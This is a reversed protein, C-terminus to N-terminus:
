RLYNFMSLNEIQVFSQQAATLTTKQQTLDSLAKNYDLDQLNSLTQKYQADMFSGTDSLAKLQNLRSGQSAQATLVSNLANNLSNLAHNIGAAQLASSSLTGGTYTANLTSILNSITSFLSENSSPKVTFTDGNHPAGQIDFQIGNFTIAQGSTYPLGTAPAPLSSAPLTAGSQDTGTITYTTAGGAAVAFTIQYTNRLQDATPPPNSVSGASIVGSGNNIAPGLSGLPDNINTIAVPTPSVSNNIQLGGNPATSVTYTALGAATLGSQIAEALTGPGTGNGAVSVDSNVTVPTGDV